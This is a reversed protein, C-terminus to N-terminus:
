PARWRVVRAEPAWDLRLAPDFQLVLTEGELRFRPTIWHARRGGRRTRYLPLERRQGDEGIVTVQRPKTAGTHLPLWLALSATASGGADLSAQYRNKAVAGDEGVVESIALETPEGDLRWPHALVVVPPGTAYFLRPDFRVTRGVGRISRRLYFDANDGELRDAYFVEADALDLKLEPVDELDEAPLTVLM